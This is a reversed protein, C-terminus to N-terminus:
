NKKIIGLNKCKVVGFVGGAVGEFEGCVFGSEFHFELLECDCKWRILQHLKTSEFKVVRVFM